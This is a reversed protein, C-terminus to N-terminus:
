KIITKVDVKFMRFKSYRAEGTITETGRTRQYRETMLEPMWLLIKPQPAYTVVITATIQDVEVKLESRLVRGTDPDITFQGSTSTVDHSGSRILTPRAREQFTVVEGRVNEVRQSGIRAFAFRAQREKELFALPMTPVNLNRHVSKGINFRASEDAIAQSQDLTKASPKIFLTALRDDRDRVPKGDVEFVDRFAMWGGGARLVALDSRLTRKQADRAGNMLSNSVVTQQYIEESVIASAAEQYGAVYTAATDLLAQLAQDQGSVRAVALAVSAGILLGATLRLRRV